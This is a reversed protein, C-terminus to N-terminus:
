APLLGYSQLLTVYFIPKMKSALQGRSLTLDPTLSLCVADSMLSPRGAVLKVVVM